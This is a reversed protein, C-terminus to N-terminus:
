FNVPYTLLVSPFMWLPCWTEPKLLNFSSHKHWKCNNLFVLLSLSLQYPIIANNELCKCIVEEVYEKSYFGLKRDEFKLVSLYLICIQPFFATQQAYNIKM